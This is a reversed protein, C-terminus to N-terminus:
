RVDPSSAYQRSFRVGTDIQTVLQLSDPIRQLADALFAPRVVISGLADIPHWEFLLRLDGELGDFRRGREFLESGAPFEMLFYLALEHTRVDDYTFFNEVFWLPRVVNVETALEEKLERRVTDAAQEGIECRGGPPGWFDDHGARHLLIHDDHIAIGAVRFQFRVDGMTM